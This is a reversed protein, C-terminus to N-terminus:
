HCTLKDDTLDCGDPPGYKKWYDMLDGLRTVFALFRPDRRFPRMEPTWLNASLNLDTYAVGGLDLCQNALSYATDLAKLLVYANASVACAMAAIPTRGETAEGNPPYLQTRAALAEDRLMPDALAAYVLEVVQAARDWDPYSRDMPKLLAKAAEAVKGSRYAASSYILALRPDDDKSAGLGVALDALKLARADQGNLSHIFAAYKVISANAPALAYAADILRLADGLRGAAYLHLANVMLVYADNPAVALAAEDHKEMDLWHGQIESLGALAIHSRGDNPDVALGQRAAREAEALNDASGGLSFTGLHASGLTGYARGFKPDRTTARQLYEIATGLSQKTNQNVLSVAQLYLDYAEVDRTPPAEAALAPSAGKLDTQLAHVITEAIDDQLKFVDTFKRDFTKSWINLGNKANILQAAIRIDDGASRVSGELVTGVGLDKAIQRVDTNRGKYAFSSTRAPVKLGPVDTLMNILEEAMGDGLYDKSSDGTLNAFPMVAISSRDFDAMQKPAAGFYQRWVLFGVAIVLAGIIVFDLKRGTSVVRRPATEDLEDTRKVGEPTLEFAWAIVLAIPFGVALLILVTKGLWVPLDLMPTVAAVVQVVLWAVVLYAIGIRFVHRRKLETFLNM